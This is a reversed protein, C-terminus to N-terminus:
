SEYHVNKQFVFSVLRPVGSKINDDFWEKLELLQFCNENAASTYDSIHHTFAQIETLGDDSEFKAKSGQYQKFSHLECVYFIGKNKVIRSAEKFIFSLDHIHELTLSCSVLDAYRDEIQWPQTLDSQIFRVKESKIKKRAEDLMKNSIDLGIISKASDVLWSTNKGTGCGIVVIDNFQFKKFTEKAVFTELDRTNNQVKDYTPAWSNYANTIEM